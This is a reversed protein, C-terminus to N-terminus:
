KNTDPVPTPTPVFESYTQNIFSLIDSLLSINVSLKIDEIPNNNFTQKQVFQEKTQTLAQVITKQFLSLQTNEINLNKDEM